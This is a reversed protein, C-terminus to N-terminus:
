ENNEGGNLWEDFLTAKTLNPHELEKNKSLEEKLNNIESTLELIKNNNEKNFDFYKKVFFPISLGLLFGMLFIVIMAIGIVIYM